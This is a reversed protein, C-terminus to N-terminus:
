ILRTKKRDLSRYQVAEALHRVSIVKSAELDAITRAIKLIRHYARASLGLKASASELFRSAESPLECFRRIERSSMQSNCHIKLGKLRETQIARAAVVRKRIDGSCAGKRAGALEQYPVAPVEIQIDIRDLLPGSIRSNYRAIQQPQCTCAKRIDGFHGCPCPNQAAVLTARAPFTLTLAARAITVVGDELPQRLAELTDKRFEPLEDLFLVGNHALSTQGPRPITGGGVLGAESISHHPSCFPRATMIPRDAPLLGAVSYIATTELAEEFSLPPLITPLRKALMTKGSGPPGVMLVNHGGAAAVEMARKAQDQGIVDEFDEYIAENGPYFFEQESFEVTSFESRGALCEVLEPLNSVPHVNIGRVVSAEKANQVPVLLAHVSWTRAALAMPLVGRAPKVSGDLSLEGILVFRDLIEQSIVGSAALIAAAIPLDLGSGEKKMDAPALNVTIKQSPFGYGCNKIASRVRERSERVPGEALGVINFAPLGPSLDVEVQVCFADIGIVCGTMAKTLM